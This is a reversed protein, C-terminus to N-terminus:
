IILNDPPILSCASKEVAYMQGPPCSPAIYVEADPAMELLAIRAEESEVYFFYKNCIEKIQEQIAKKYEEYEKIVKEIFDAKLDADKVEVAVAKEIFDTNLNADRVTFTIPENENLKIM